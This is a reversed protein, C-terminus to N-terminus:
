QNEGTLKSNVLSIIERRTMDDAWSDTQVEIITPINRSLASIFHEKFTTMATARLYELDYLKALPEFNMGHPTLFLEQFSSEFQSVPLRQFIGGGNNNLLVIIVNELGYKKIALLGNSDHYFTIDGILLVVPKDTTAAIGLGTSINGDIGSAGRNSFPRILKKRPYGFQDIHRITLSNGAFLAADPPIQDLVTNAVSGDFLSEDVSELIVNVCISETKMWYNIWAQNVPRTLQPALRNCLESANVQLFYNTTHDGDAWNGSERIHIHAANQNKALYENLWKSTPVRGFRLIVDSKTAFTQESQLFTEYGGLVASDEVHAGYRVGSLPDALIPYGSAKSLNVVAEAFDGGPCGPGCVILGRQHNDILSLIFRIQSNSALLSGIEITTHPRGKGLIKTAIQWSALNQPELPKRFPFNLHVPGKTLGDSTALSRAALTKLYRMTIPPADTQPLAVDVSWLVHDGFMKVQDITQNAGSNRLEHPRDATLILLPIESMQAEIIAPHFNAAATGSTCVLAVSKQEALAIGLAFFAASREDLLVYVKIHPHAHFALALPTSRSGPAICVASLGGKALEDVFILAWEINPNNEPQPRSESKKLM